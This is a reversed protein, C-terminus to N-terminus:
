ATGSGREGRLRECTAIADALTAMKPYASEPVEVGLERHLAQMLRLLDMSDLDLAERLDARPDLASPDRDPAVERLCALLVPRVDRSM